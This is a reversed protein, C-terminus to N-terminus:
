VALFSVPLHRRVFKLLFQRKSKVSDSRMYPKPTVYGKITFAPKLAVPVTQPNLDNLM